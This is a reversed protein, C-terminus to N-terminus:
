RGSGAPLRRAALAAAIRDALPSGLGSALDYGPRAVCCGSGFLDNTGVTIDFFTGPTSSALSYLLPPIFGLLPQGQQNAQQQWLAIMGAVLPAAASTGGVFSLSQPPSRPCGSVATSCVITYGPTADAFASVDPVSRHSSSGFAPQWWPRAAFRSQGGGGGAFARYPAPYVTDNWAGSSAITNQPTLTLNTGGVSLVYPSTTPWSASPQELAPTLEEPPVGRACTSAGTDGAAVVVTIGLAATAALQREALRRGASFPAVTGECVGYSVSIVNPLPGGQRVAEVPTALLQLFGEADGDLSDDELPRVWLDFSALKPAVMSLVMADLSSELIPQVGRGGHIRLQTGPFGFCDRFRSVDALPTPGGGVIAVRVGSGDLGAAHLAQIGYANLIQTPSIGLKGSVFEPADTDLCSPGFTGTRTPTGAAYPPGAPAASAAVARRPASPSTGAPARRVFALPRLGAVIDVNGALGPPLVPRRDPLAVLEGPQGLSYLSWPVGFLREVKAV